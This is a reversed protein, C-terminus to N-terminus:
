DVRKRPFTQANTEAEAYSEATCYWGNAAAANAECISYKNTKGRNNAEFVAFCFVCRDTYKDDAFFRRDHLCIVAAQGEGM